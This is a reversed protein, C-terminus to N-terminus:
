QEPTPWERIELDLPTPERGGMQKFFFPIENDGCYDRIDRAWSADMPRAGPGTEGGVIIWNIFTMWITSHWRKIYAEIDRFYLISELLPEFSIFRVPAEQVRRQDHFAGLRNHFTGTDEATFGFWINDPTPINPFIDDINNPRKTLFIYTHDRYIQTVDVIEEMWEKGVNYHFADGMSCVFIRSPRKVESPEDIRKRHFTVEMPNDAPYGFRGRMRNALRRAYCNDCGRSIPQCGTIPNWTYDCWEIGTKNM